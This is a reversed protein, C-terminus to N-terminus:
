TEKVTAVPRRAAVVGTVPTPTQWSLEDAPKPRREHEDSKRTGARSLITAGLGFTLAVWSGALAVARLVSGAVPSWVFAAAIFWFGLYITLGLFLSRLNVVRPPGGSRFFARGTFRAVAIFGLTLLGCLAVVYAVVAFPILLIGLLTVTLGVLILLLAPITAMQALVGIWFSRAFQQELAEVVGNLNREAFLLVGIGIAFLIAFWGIVMKIAGWTDVPEDAGARGGATAIIDGAIGRISRVDGEIVGGATRVRGDVAVANGGVQGGPPVIVDGHLAIADGSVRGRVVLNGRAVAVTGQRVTGAPVEQTGVLFESAEPARVSRFLRRLVAIEARLRGDMVAPPRASDAPQQAPAAAPVFAAALAGVILARM